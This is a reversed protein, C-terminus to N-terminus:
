DSAVLWNKGLAKEAADLTFGLDQDTQALRVISHLAPLPNIKFKSAFEASTRV